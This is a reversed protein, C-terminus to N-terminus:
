LTPKITGTPDPNNMGELATNNQIENEPICFNWGPKIGVANIKFADGPANTGTYSQYSGARMRKADFFATGEGWFEVRKQFLIEDEFAAATSATCTYQPNRYTTMFTTLASVGDAINLMGKAEAEILYMEEVRMLPVDTAGGTAYEEWNGAKCRFKISFYPKQSTIFAKDRSTQYNYYTYKNPDIFSHKRFDTDPIRDYIWRNIAFLTLSNYGWDAEGAMWGTFNCLNGMSEASYAIYWMWSNNASADCFGSTPSEWQAQTLPTCGSEDIAKRAYEAAKAYEGKTMYVRAKLGYVVAISPFLKSSPTYDKLGTEANDLDGMIFTYMDEATVRPNNKGASEATEDTVIPVTLGLVKSCDTYQNAVPEYMNWLHYYAWARYAYAMGLYGKQLASPESVTRVSKIIDNASKVFMYLTRWPVYQNYTTPALGADETNYRRFWDYAPNSGSPFIDGMLETYTIMLAPYGMDIETTQEGYVLYGQSLQAPIGSMSANLASSSEAIQESTATGGEPFTEKICSTLSLAAIGM